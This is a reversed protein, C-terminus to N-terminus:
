SHRESFTKMWYSLIERGNHENLDDFEDLLYPLAGFMNTVGSERLTDLYVLHEEKCAEPKDMKIMGGNITKSVAHHLMAMGISRCDM